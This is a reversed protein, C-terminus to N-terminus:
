FSVKSSKIKKLEELYNKITKMEELIMEIEKEYEKNKCELEKM